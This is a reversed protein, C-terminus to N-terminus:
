SKAQVYFSLEICYFRLNNEKMVLRNYKRDLDVNEMLSFIRGPLASSFLKGNSVVVM